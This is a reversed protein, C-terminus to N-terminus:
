MFDAFPHYVEDIEEVGFRDEGFKEDVYQKISAFDNLAEPILNEEHLQRVADAEDKAYILVWENFPDWEDDEPPMFVVLRNPYYKGEKDNTEFLGLNRDETYYYLHTLKGEFREEEFLDPMMTGREWPYAEEFKLVSYDDKDVVEPNHWEARFWGSYEDEKGETNIGLNEFAKSTWGDANAIADHLQHVAEKTGEVWYTTFTYTAM